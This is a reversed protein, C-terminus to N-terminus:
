AGCFRVFIGLEKDSAKPALWRRIDEVALKALVPQGRYQEVQQNRNVMNWMREAVPDERGIAPGKYGERGCEICWPIYERTEHDIQVVLAKEPHRLCKRGRIERQVEHLPRRTMKRRRM